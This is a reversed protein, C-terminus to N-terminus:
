GYDRGKRLPVGELRPGRGKSLQQWAGEGAQTAKKENGEEHGIVPASANKVGL